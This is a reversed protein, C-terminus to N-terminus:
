SLLENPEMGLRKQFFKLEGQLQTKRVDLERHKWGFSFKVQIFDFVRSVEEGLSNDSQPGVLRCGQHPKVM